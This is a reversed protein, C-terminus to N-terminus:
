DIIEQLSALCPPNRECWELLHPFHDLCLVPEYPRLRDIHHAGYSVAMRPMEVQQAMHMDYETDGVMICEEPPRGFEAMLERLMVPQPKSATEDACRSGDFFGNLDMERLIRDLGRRSKGTAIALQYGQERLKHLTELVGPFFKPNGDEDNLYFQAYSARLRDATHSELGGFLAQGAEPLGLGIINKVAAESPVPLGVDDAARQMARVIKSASDSLTGDWDFIYLM